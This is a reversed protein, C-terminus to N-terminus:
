SVLQFPLVQDDWLSVLNRIPRPFRIDGDGWRMFRRGELGNIWQPLLHRLINTTEEGKIKKEIFVFEGKNTERIQFDDLSVGQKRAFGEAAPTPKGDKFAVSTPPGKIEEERDPQKAELGEILLALRRPTGYFKIESPHLFEKALDQEIRNQWQSIASDVFDAPLEETGIELLFNPM